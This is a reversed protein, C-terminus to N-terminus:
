FLLVGLFSLLEERSTLICLTARLGSPPRKAIFDAFVSDPSLFIPIPQNCPPRPSLFPPCCSVCSKHCLVLAGAPVACAAPRAPAAARLVTAMGVAVTPLRRAEPAGPQLRQARPAEAATQPEEWQPPREFM